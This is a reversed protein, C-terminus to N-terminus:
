WLVSGIAVSGILGCVGNWYVYYRAVNGIGEGASEIWDWNLMSGCWV